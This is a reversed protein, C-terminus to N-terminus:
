PASARLVLRTRPSVPSRDFGGFAEIGVFGAETLLRVLETVTYTRISYTRRWTGHRVTVRHIGRVWDIAGSVEVERAEEPRSAAEAELYALRDRHMLTMVLLGAPRLAARWASLAALDDAGEAFYGFSTFLNLVADYPGAPPRRMDARVYSPGPNREAALRLQDASLDAGTVRYGRAHLPGAIRGFGCPIDLLRAGAPLGILGIVGEVEEATRDFAGAATWAAVYDADFLSEWWDDVV